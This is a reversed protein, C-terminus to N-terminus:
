NVMRIKEATNELCDACYEQHKLEQIYGCKPCKHPIFDAAKDKIKQIVEMGEDYNLSTYPDPAVKPLEAM